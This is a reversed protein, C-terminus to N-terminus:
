IDIDYESEKQQKDEVTQLKNIKENAKEWEKNNILSVIKKIDKLIETDYIRYRFAAAVENFNGHFDVFDNLESKRFLEIPEVFSFQREVISKLMNIPNKNDGYFTIYTGNNEKLQKILEQIEDDKYKPQPVRRNIIFFEKGDKIMFNPYMLCDNMNWQDYSKYPEKEIFEIM